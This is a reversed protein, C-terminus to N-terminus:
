RAPTELLWEVLREVERPSLGGNVAQAGWGPMTTGPRGLAIAAEYYAPEETLVEQTLPPASRGERQPGHCTSCNRAYYVHAERGRVLDEVPVDPPPADDGCAGLVLALAGAAVLALTRLRAM